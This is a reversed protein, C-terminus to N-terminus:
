IPCGCRRWWRPTRCGNSMNRVENVVSRGDELGLRKSIFSEMYDGCQGRYRESVITSERCQECPIQIWVGPFPITSHFFDQTVKLIIAVSNRIFAHLKVSWHVYNSTGRFTSPLFGRLTLCPRKVLLTAKGSHVRFYISLAILDSITCKRGAGSHFSHSLVFQVARRKLYVSTGEIHSTFSLALALHLCWGSCDREGFSNTFMSNLTNGLHRSSDFHSSQLPYKCHDQAGKRIFYNEYVDNNLM